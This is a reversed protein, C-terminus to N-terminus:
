NKKPEVLQELRQLRAELSETKSRLAENEKKLTEIQAQQEQISKVALVGFGAYNVALYGGQGDRVPNRTVLEPFLGQVDQAIFGMSRRASESESKYHYTVPQLQMVKNLVGNAMGLVEKKLDRDSPTYLGNTAFTGAPVGAPLQDNYLVLSGDTSSVWFEWNHSNTTNELMFGSTTHFVKLRSPGNNVGGIGVSGNGKVTLMRTSAAGAFDLGFESANGNGKGSLLWAGPGSNKFSMRAYDGGQQEVTLQPAAQNSFFHGSGKVDLPFDPNPIGIGVYGADTVLAPGAASTFYGAPGSGQTEAYLAPEAGAGNQVLRAASAGTSTVQLRGSTATASGIIVDGTNKNYLDNSIIKWYDNTSASLLSTFDVTSNTGSITLEAGNLSLDQLENTNSLDGTNKISFNPASGSIQIGAGATYTNGAPLTVTGGGNSLTLNSGALSIAQIENTNSVDGTNNIVLNPATGTISIATGATYNNGSGGGSPLTVTGGGDSLTLQNGALTIQQFENTPDKDADGTNNIVLNPATGTISIGSGASYNNGSGGGTGVLDDAPTWDTGDWKLVQGTTAGQKALNVPNAITGNGTLAAGVATTQTGWNDGGDNAPLWTGSATNWKLVQGNTAGQKALELPSAVTGNGSLTADTAVTQTGWNDGAGGGSENAPAWATGNWKLIQGTAAGMNNIKAATIAGNIIANTTVSNSALKTSTVAGTKILLNSFTGTIDGNAQDTINLDDSADTDGTNIVIFTNGSPTVDIGTGPLVNFSGGQDAAPAWATGNWKLVQGNSAGMDDIKAGTVASNALNATEVANNALETTSVVDAKLQLNAFTGTVDGNAPSSTTIDDSPNTDGSNTITLNPSTGTISIGTGSTLNVTGSQDAAPAWATGNWKIVQGNAAGMNDLKAATVAGNSIKATTVANASIEATGVANDNLESNGVANDAIEPSGVANPKIQLDNYSGTVDGGHPTTLLVDDSANVDGTNTITFNFGNQQVNIGAAGTMGITGPQITSTFVSTVRGQADVSIIPIQTASGYIGATVGSNNLSITGSNTIPGGTLGAGTNIQTVTGGNGGTTNIDNAPTWTNGDWKLVQGPQAGQQAIALPSGGTGNGSLTGNTQATQIGWNDSGGGTGNGSNQAYMAYPVSMLQSSGLENFMNPSTEVSVTLFKAGGGWNITTFDGLVPIGGQGIVLNVLGYQNTSIVQKESYAVPGNAAGSRILFLLTVTQNMLATGNNDRVICQYNFGQPTFQAFLSGSFCLALLLFLLRNKM